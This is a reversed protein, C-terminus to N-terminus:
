SNSDTAADPQALQPEIQMLARKREQWFNTPSLSRDMENLWTRAEPLNGDALALVALEYMAQGRYLADASPTGALAKLLDEAQTDAEPAQTQALSAAQAIIARARMASFEPKDGFIRAANAFAEAAEAFKGTEALEGAASFYATGAIPDSENESAFTLMEAPTNLTAFEEQLAAVKMKGVQVYVIAAIIALFVTTALAVTQKGHRQWFLWVRDEFDADQFDDDVLVLNRDDGAASAHKKKQSFRNKMQNSM